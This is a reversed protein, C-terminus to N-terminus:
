LGNDRPNWLHLANGAAAALWRGGPQWAVDGVTEEFDFTKESRWNSSSWLRVTRDAGSTVLVKGDPRWALATVRATHGRLLAVKKTTEPSLVHILADDAVALQEGDASWALVSPEASGVAISRTRRGRPDWLYVAGTRVGANDDVLTGVALLHADPRWALSFARHPHDLVLQNKQILENWVWVKTGTYTAALREADASWAARLNPSQLRQAVRATELDWFRVADDYDASRLRKGDPTWILAQIAGGGRFVRPEGGMPASWVHMLGVNTGAAIWKGDPSWAVTTIKGASTRLVHERLPPEGKAHTLIGVALLLCFAIRM